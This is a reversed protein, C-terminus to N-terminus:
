TIALKSFLIDPDQASVGNIRRIQVKVKDKFVLDRSIPLTSMTLVASNNPLVGFTNSDSQVVGNVTVAIEYAIDETSGGRNLTVQATLIRGRDRTALWIIEGNEEDFMAMKEAESFCFYFINTGSDSVDSFVNTTLTVERATSSTFQVGGRDSSSIIGPTNMIEWSASSHDFTIPNGFIHMHADSEDVFAFGVIDTSRNLTVWLDSQTGEEGSLFSYQVTSTLGKLVYIRTSASDGVTLNIGDFALGTPNSTPASITGNITTSFGEHFYILGTTFDCTVMDNGVFIIGSINGAPSAISTTSTTFGSHQYILNTTENTSYLDGRFWALFADGSAPAAINDMATNSLGVYRYFTGSGSSDSVVLNGSGDQTIGIPATAGTTALISDATPQCKLFDDGFGALPTATFNTQNITGQQIDNPNGVQIGTAGFGFTDLICLIQIGVIEAGKEVNIGISNNFLAIANNTFSFTETSSGSEFKIIGDRPAMFPLAVLSGLNDFLVLDVGGSGDQIIQVGEGVNVENCILGFGSVLRVDGGTLGVGDLNFASTTTTSDLNMLEGSGLQVLTIDRARFGSTGNTVFLPVTTTGEISSLSDAEGKLWTNTGQMIQNGGSNLVPIKIFYCTDDALQILEDVPDPLDALSFVEIVNLQVQSFEEWGTDADTTAKRYFRHRKTNLYLQGLVGEVSGEPEATGQILANFGGVQNLSRSIERMWIDFRQNPFGGEGVIPLNRGPDLIEAV